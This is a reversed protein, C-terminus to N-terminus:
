DLIRQVRFYDDQRRPANSLVQDPTLSPAVKDARTVNTLDLVQATPPIADTDLCNLMEAYALIQSLQEAFLEVEDETLGLKALEAVHRVKKRDLKM